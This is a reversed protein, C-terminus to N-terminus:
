SGAPSSSATEVGCDAAWAEAQARRLRFPLPAFRHLQDLAAVMAARAAAVGVSDLCQLRADVMGLTSRAASDLNAGDLTRAEFEQRLARAADMQQQALALWARDLLASLARPHGPGGSAEHRQQAEALLGDAARYDHEAWRLLAQAHRTEVFHPHHEGLETRLRREVQAYLRQSEAHRGLERLASAQMRQLALVREVREPKFTELIGLGEELMPLAQEPEGRYIAMSALNALAMPLYPMTAPQNARLIRLSEELSARAEDAQGLAGQFVSLSSLATGLNASDGQGATRLTEISRQQLELAAQNRGRRHEISALGNLAEALEDVPPRPVGSWVRIAQELLETAEDMLGQREMVKAVNRYLAARADDPMDPRLGERMQAVSRQLLERASMQDNQLEGPRATSFMLDYFHAIALAKDRELGLAALQDRSRQVEVAALGIGGGVVGAAVLLWPWRRRLFRRFRYGREGARAFVPRGQLRRRLDEAFADVSAYRDEPRKRLAMGVIADLDADVGAVAAHRSPPDVEDYLIAQLLAAPALERPYPSRGTLLEYLLLGLAYIDVSPGPRQATAGLQEPAAYRLSLRQELTRTDSGEALLRAVGFDLLKPEGSADVRINSPKIDCHVVLQRHAYSVAAMLKLLLQMRQGLDPAHVRMHADLDLGEIYPTALFPIGQADVGADVLNAIHPHDLGALISREREFLRQLRPDIQAHLAQKLAVKQRVAGLQREALWVVGMGGRGLEGLISYNDPMVTQLGAARTRDQNARDLLGLPQEAAALLSRLAGILEPSQAAYEAIREERLAAPLELLEGSWRKLQHYQSASPAETPAPTSSNSSKV